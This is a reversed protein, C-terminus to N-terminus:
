RNFCLAKQKGMKQRGSANYTKKPQHVGETYLIPEGKELFEDLIQLVAALSGGPNQRLDVIVKQAGQKDLKEMGNMFENYTKNSFRNVKIFGTENDIMYSVDVSYLRYIAVLLRLNLNM